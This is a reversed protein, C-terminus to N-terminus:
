CKNNTIKKISAMRVPTFHYRMTTKIQLERNVLPISCRKMHQNAMQIDERSFCRNLDEAWTKLLTVQNKSIWNYSSNIYTPYLDSVPWKCIDEEIWYTTKMEYQYITEKATCFRTLKILDWKSIKAKM